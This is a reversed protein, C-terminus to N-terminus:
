REHPRAQRGRSLARGHAQPVVSVFFLYRGLSRAPSRWRRLASSWSCRGAGAVLLPLVIAGLPSCCAACRRLAPALTTSLLRATGSCSSATPPSAAPPLAAGLLVLQAGAMAAAALALWRADGAGVAAAFLPGLLARRSTSSCCRTAAHELGAAVARPLHLRQGDRRRHRAAVTLAGVCRAARCGSGCCRRRLRGAVGSFAAFLLVERSLWSRRWMKCRAIPTSRGASTCRRRRWRSAASSCRRSRPSASARRVRRAAAAALDDRLRRGVAAHAGDHRRAALAPARARRAHPRAPAREAAPRAPLTVRTTSLSGDAVPLGAPAAIRRRGRRAVRRHERDRDRDRGRPLRERVGAGARARPPRPVHRVQRGRRARPQVAARRVLLELHLVPLRHLRRRQAARHRHGPGEHLRRGPLREPVDARPLPQLGDLPLARQAHPISAAKSRASAGGTSRPPIATRSTAPSSAASAASASGWTSTSATSSAPSSARADPMRAALPVPGSAGGRRSRSRCRDSDDARLHRRRRDGAELLPLSM